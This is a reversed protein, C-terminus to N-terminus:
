SIKYDNKLAGHTVTKVDLRLLWILFPSDLIFFAPSTLLKFVIFPLLLGTPSVGWTLLKRNVFAQSGFPMIYFM